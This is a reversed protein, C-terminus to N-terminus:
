LSWLTQTVTLTQQTAENGLIIGMRNRREAGPEARVRAIEALMAERRYLTPAFRARDPAVGLYALLPADSVWYLTTDASAVHTIEAGAPVTFLDGPSWALDRDQIRTRGAGDIVYFLHSTAVGATAQSEGARIRVFSALLAPSTAPWACGLRASLDWPIVRTPGGQHRSAPFVDYPVPPVAPDAAKTYELFRAAATWDGAPAPHAM